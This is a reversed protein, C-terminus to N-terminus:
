KTVDPDDMVGDVIRVIEDAADAVEPDHTVMIVARGDEAVSRLADVVTQGSERDLSGTPEDAFVV